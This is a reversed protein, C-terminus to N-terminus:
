KKSLKIWLKAVAEVPIKGVGIIENSNWNIAWWVKKDNKDLYYELRFLETAKILESLTPICAKDSCWGLDHGCKYGAKKLQLALKYNM